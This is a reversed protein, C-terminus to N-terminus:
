RSSKKKLPKKAAKVLAAKMVEPTMACKRHNIYVDQGKASIMIYYTPAPDDPDPRRAKSIAGQWVLTIAEDYSEVSDFIDIIGKGKLLTSNVRRLLTHAQAVKLVTRAQERRDLVSLDLKEINKTQQREDEERIQSLEDLWNM